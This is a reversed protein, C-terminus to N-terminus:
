KIRGLGWLGRFMGGNVIRRDFLDLRNPSACVVLSILKSGILSKDLSTLTSVFLTLGFAIFLTILFAVKIGM